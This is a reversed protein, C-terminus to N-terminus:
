TDGSACRYRAARRCRARTPDTTRRRDVTGRRGTQEEAVQQEEAALQEEPTEAQADIALQEDAIHEEEVQEDAAQDNAAANEDAATQSEATEISPEALTAADSIAEATLLEGEGAPEEFDLLPQERGDELGVGAPRVPAASFSDDTRETRLVAALQLDLGATRILEAATRVREAGSKGATVVVFVRDTWASLYDAGVSPDLDALVLTIDYLELSPSSGQEDGVTRLEAPGNALSPIGCPRLLTTQGTSSVMSSAVGALGGQETLDIVAVSRGNAALDAVATVLAFRVEDANDICAVALRGRRGPTPLEMEIAHALRQRQESRRSDLTRLHPLRLWRKSLPTIRGVSVSVPVELASAIDSRQRLRDSMIAFLLVIGCGVATGGIIGSALVLVIHRKVGGTEPAPPDIVRSSAVVATSQLTADEVSQQLQEIRGQVYARQAIADSLKSASQSGAASLTEIRQSLSAVEAELKAIRQQIGDVLVNSQMSLQEGRFNLYIAAFVNLRRVAEADTPAGLTLTLLESSVAEARVSKIFDDPTMTLGLSAVTEAAVTRTKLLSVDTAMARSPEVEPDHALVLSAKADHSAPFAVLFAVAALLGLIPSLVVVLWRRQLATRIFHFSVLTPSPRGSVTQDEDEFDPIDWSRQTM